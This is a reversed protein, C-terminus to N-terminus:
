NKRVYYNRTHINNIELTKVMHQAGREKKQWSRKDKSRTKTKEMEQPQKKCHQCM